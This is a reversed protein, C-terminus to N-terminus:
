ALAGYMSWRCGQCATVVEDGKALLWVQSSGCEPCPGSLAQKTWVDIRAQQTSQTDLRAREAIGTSIRAEVASIVEPISVSSDISALLQRCEQLTALDYAESIKLM